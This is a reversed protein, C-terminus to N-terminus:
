SEWRPTRLTMSSSATQRRRRMTSQLRPPTPRRTVQHHSARHSLRELSPCRPRQKDREHPTPPAISGNHSFCPSAASTSCAQSSPHRCGDFQQLVDLNARCKGGCCSIEDRHEDGAITTSSVGFAASSDFLILVPLLRARTMAAASSWGGCKSSSAPRCTNTVGLAMSCLLCAKNFVNLM